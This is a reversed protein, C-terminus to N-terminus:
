QRINTTDCKSQQLPMKALRGPMWTSPRYDTSFAAVLCMQLAERQSCMMWNWVTQRWQSLHGSRMCNLNFTDLYLATFTIDGSWMLFSRNAPKLVPINVSGFRNVLVLHPSRANRVAPGVDEFRKGTLILCDADSFDNLLCNFVDIQETKQM